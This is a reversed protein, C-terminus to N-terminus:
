PKGGKAVNLAEDITLQDAIIQTGQMVRYRNREKPPIGPISLIQPKHRFLEPNQPSALPVSLHHPHNKNKYKNSL